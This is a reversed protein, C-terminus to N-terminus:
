KARKVSRTRVVDKSKTELEFDEIELATKIFESIIYDAEKRNLRAYYSTAKASEGNGGEKKIKFTSFTKTFYEDFCATYCFRMINLYEDNVFVEDPRRKIPKGELAPITVYSYGYDYDYTLTYELKM